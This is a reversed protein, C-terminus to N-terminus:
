ASGGLVDEVIWRWVRQKIRWGAGLALREDRDETLDGRERAESRHDLYFCIWRYADAANDHEELARLLHERPHRPWTEGPQLERGDVVAPPRPDGWLAKVLAKTHRPSWLQDQLRPWGADSEALYQPVLDRHRLRDLREQMNGVHPVSVAAHPLDPALLTGSARDAEAVLFRVAGEGGHSNYAVVLLARDDARVRVVFVTREDTRGFACAGVLAASRDAQRALTVAADAVWQNEAVQYASTVVSMLKDTDPRVLARYGHAVVPRDGDDPVLVPRRSVPWGLGAGDVVARTDTMQETWIRDELAVGGRGGIFRFLPLGERPQRGGREVELFFDGGRDRFNVM